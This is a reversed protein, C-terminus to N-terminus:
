RKDALEELIGLIEASGFGIAMPLYSKHVASIICSFIRVGSKALSIFLHGKSNM